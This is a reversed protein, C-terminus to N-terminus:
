TADGKTTLDSRELRRAALAVLIVTVRQLFRDASPDAASARVAFICTLAEGVETNTWTTPLMPMDPEHRRGKLDSRLRRSREDTILDDFWAALRPARSTLRKKSFAAIRDLADDPVSTLYRGVRIM